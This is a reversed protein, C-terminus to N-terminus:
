TADWSQTSPAGPAPRQPFVPLRKELFALVGERADASRGRLLTLMSDRHHAQLAGRHADWGAWLLQRTLAVSVPSTRAALEDALDLAAPLVDNAPHLASLLGSERAEDAGFTRGTCLWDQARAMGVARPLFWSSAGEPVMGRRTFPFAFKATDAALRVDMPLTMSLGIGVAPGNIAAIVPKVSRLLRITIVGAPDRFGFGSEVAGPGDSVFDFAEVGTSLDAGACFASGAGTVVVAHVSDDADAEDLCHVFPETMEPLFANLRDPRNLTIIATRSHKEYTVDVRTMM